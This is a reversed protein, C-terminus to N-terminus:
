DILLRMRNDGIMNFSNKMNAIFPFEKSIVLVGLLLESNSNCDWTLM